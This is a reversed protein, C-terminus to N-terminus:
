NLYNGSTNKNMLPKKYKLTDYIHVVLVAAIKEKAQQVTCGAKILRELTIRTVPPNNDALQNDVAELVAQKFYPNYGEKFEDGFYNSNSIHAKIFNGKEIGGSITINMIVYFLLKKLALFM